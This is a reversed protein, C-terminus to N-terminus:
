MLVLHLSSIAHKSLNEATYAERKYSYQNLYDIVDQEVNQKKLFALIIYGIYKNATFNYEKSYSIAKILSAKQDELSSHYWLKNSGIETLIIGYLSMSEINKDGNSTSFDLAQTYNDIAIDHKEYKRYMEGFDFYANYELRKRLQEYGKKSETLLVLEKEFSDITMMRLYRAEVKKVAFVISSAQPLKNLNESMLAFSEVYNYERNNLQLNLTILEMKCKYWTSINNYQLAFEISM